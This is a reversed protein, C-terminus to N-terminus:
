EGTHRFRSFALPVLFSATYGVLAYRAFSVLPHGGPMLTYAIYRPALYALLCLLGGFGAWLLRGKGSVGTPVPPRTRICGLTFGFLAGSADVKGGSLANFALCLVAIALARFSPRLGAFFAAFRAYFLIGGLACLYGAILGLLVDTPFHVGLYLRTFSVIVPVLVALVAGAKRHKQLCLWALLTWFTASSQAHGSPTSFGTELILGVSPDLVFPRPTQLLAKLANNLAFSFFLLFFFTFGKRSDVTWYVFLAVAIGLGPEGLLTLVKMVLDLPPTSLTQIGRIVELGWEYVEYGFM